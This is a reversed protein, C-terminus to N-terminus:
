NEDSRGRRRCVIIRGALEHRIKKESISALVAAEKLTLWSHANENGRTIM